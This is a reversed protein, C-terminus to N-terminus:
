RVYSNAVVDLAMDIAAGIGASTIIKGQKVVGSRSDVAVASFPEQMLQLSKWHTTRVSDISCDPGQRYDLRRNM